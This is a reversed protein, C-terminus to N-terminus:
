AGRFGLLEQPTKGQSRSLRGLENWLEMALQRKEIASGAYVGVNITLNNNVSSRDEGGVPIVKEGGHVVALTPQGIQGGVVGGDAFKPLYQSFWSVAGSVAGSVAQGINSALNGVAQFFSPNNSSPSSVSGVGVNQPVFTNYVHQSKQGADKSAEQIKQVTESAGKNDKGAEYSVRERAGQEYLEKLKEQHQREREAREEQYKRKLRTIDDEAVADKLASFDSEHKAYIALEVNLEDQLMQLRKEHESKIKSTEQDFMGAVKIKQDEYSRNEEELKSKLDALKNKSREIDQLYKDDQFSKRKNESIILAKEEELIDKEIEATKKKHSDELELMDDEYESKREDMKESYVKNEEEIDQELRKRKDRHAFVLDSLSEQFNKAMGSLDRTFDENEKKLDKALKAIKESAQSTTEGLGAIASRSVDQISHNWVSGVKEGVDEMISGFDEGVVKLTAKIPDLSKTKIAEPIALFTAIVGSIANGLMRAAGVAGIFVSSIAKIAPILIRGAGNAVSIFNDILMQLAPSFAQGVEVRAMQIVTNLKSMQGGLTEAALKADGQFVSAEKILGNYLKQRVSADSTVLGLDNQSLGAEKLINSLNKTIGVNDVMISNQNKIGQTAGVIADGFELTGQRNFSAADKFGNMLNIAEELNFGTALLNKLGEGAETVSMLGDRALEVSARRAEDQSQGFAGAVSSLGIMANTYKNAEQISNQLENKLFSLGRTIAMSALNATIFSGTLGGLSGSLGRTKGQAEQSDSGLGKLSKAISNIKDQADKVEAKINVIVDSNVAM